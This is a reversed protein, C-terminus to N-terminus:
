HQQHFISKPHHNVTRVNIDHLLAMVKQSTWLKRRSEGDPFFIRLLFM